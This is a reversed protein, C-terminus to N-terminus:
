KSMQKLCPSQCIRGGGGTLRSCSGPSIVATRTPPHTMCIWSAGTAGGISSRPAHTHQCRPTQEPAAAAGPPLQRVGAGQKTGDRPPCNPQRRQGGSMSFAYVGCRQHVRPNLANYSPCSPLSPWPMNPYEDPSTDTSILFPAPSRRCFYVIIFNLCDPYWIEEM